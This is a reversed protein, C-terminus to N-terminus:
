VLSEKRRLFSSRLVLPICGLTLLLAAVFVEPEPVPVIENLNGTTSFSGTGMFGSGSGSYFSINALEASSLTGNSDFLHTYQGDGGTTSATGWLNVGNWNYIALSNSTLGAISGFTLSSVGSLNAFDIVSNGTLTLSAFTQSAARTSGGGMSLTGGALTLAASANVQNTSSSGLLLTAGSNVTVSTTANLFGATGLNLSGGNLTTAGTYTSTGSLVQTSSGDKTLGGVGSITGAFTTTGSGAGVTLGYYNLNVTAGSAGSLSAVSQAAGLNLTSTGDISVDSRGNSTPLAGAVNANLIAGNTIYTPGNYSNAGTFTTVGGDIVLDSNPTGTNGTIAGSVTIGGSGGKLSLITGAKALMGSLTLMSGPSNNAITGTGNTVSINNALTAVGSDAFTLFANNALLINGSGMSTARSFQLTGGNVATGGTYSNSGTLVLTGAGSKNLASTGALSASITGNQVSFTGGNNSMTGTIISGGTLGSLANTFTRAWLDVTGGNVTLGGTGMTGASNFNVLGGNVVTGGSYTNTGALSNTGSNLTLGGTGDIAGTYYGNTLTGTIALSNGGLSIAGAGFLGAINYTNTGAVGFALTNNNGKNLIANALANTNNLSLTGNNGAVIATGSFSNSNNLGLTGGGYWSLTSNSSGALVGGINLTGGYVNMNQTGDAMTVTGSGLSTTGWANVTMTGNVNVANNNGLLTVLSGSNVITGGTITVTGTGLATTNGLNLIGASVTSGGSYSNAGSLTVTGSGAKTLSGGGALAASITGNTVSFSSANLTGNQLTGGSLNLAGNTQTSGGLDITGNTLTVSGTIGGLTGSNTLALTGSTVGLGGSFTNAGSLTTTQSGGFAVGGTGSLVGSYALNASNLINLSNGGLNISGNGSFAGLNYTNAGAVSFALTQGTNFNLNAFQLANTNALVVTGNNGGAALNGTFTNAGGLTLTGGGYWNILGSGSIVGDFEAGGSFANLNNNGNVVMNGTGFNLNKGNGWVSFQQWGAGNTIGNLIITNNGTLQTLAGANRIFNDGTNFTITGSGLAGASGISLQSGDLQLNGPLANDAGLTLNGKNTIRTLGTYSNSSSFTQALGDSATGNGSIIVGGTGSLSGSYSVSTTNNINLSNGGLSINGSGSLAGLNYTSSSGGNAGFSLTQSNNFNLNASQLANTHGLVVTGNNGGAALNGTFTNNGGLTLTGGGYWNILGSGSVVGDFEAGGSFANLNNNGNVVLGGTGFNLNVGDAWIDVTTWSGGNLIIKNNGTLQTQAGWNRLLNYGSNATITGNGLAGATGFSLTSGDLTINANGIAQNAGISINGGNTLQLNGTFNNATHAIYIEKSGSLTLNGPGSLQYLYGIGNSQNNITGGGNTMVVQSNYYIASGNNLNVTSGGGIVTDVTRADGNSFTGITLFGAAPANTLTVNTGGLYGIYGYLMMSNLYGNGGGTGQVSFNLTRDDTGLNGLALGTLTVVQNSNYVGGTGVNLSGSATVTSFTNDSYASYLTTGGYTNAGYFTADYTLGGPMYKFGFDWTNVGGVAANAVAYGAAAAKSGALLGLSPALNIGAVQNSTMNLSINSNGAPGNYADVGPSTGMLAGLYAGRYVSNSSPSDGTSTTLWSFTNWPNLNNWLNGNADPGNQPAGNWVNGPDMNILITQAQTAAPICLLLAIAALGPLLLRRVSPQISVSQM